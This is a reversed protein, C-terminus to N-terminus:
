VQVRMNLDQGHCTSSERHHPNRVFTWAGKTPWGYRLFLKDDDDHFPQFIHLTVSILFLPLSWGNKTSLLQFWGKIEFISTEACSSGALFFINKSIQCCAWQPFPLTFYYPPKRLSYPSQFTQYIKNMIDESLKLKVKALCKIIKIM